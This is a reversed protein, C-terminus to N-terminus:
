PNTGGDPPAGTRGGANRRRATGDEAFLVPPDTM